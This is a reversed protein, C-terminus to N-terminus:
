RASILSAAVRMQILNILRHGVAKERVASGDPGVKRKERPDHGFSREL